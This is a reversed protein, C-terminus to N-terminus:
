THRIGGRDRQVLLDGEETPRLAIRPTVSTTAVRGTVFRIVRGREAGLAIRLGIESRRGAVTLSVITYIGISALTLALLSFLGLVGTALRPGALAATLHGRMTDLRDVPLRPNLERLASRLAPLLSAPDVDASVVFIPADVASEPM